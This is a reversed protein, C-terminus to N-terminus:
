RVAKRAGRQQTIGAHYDFDKPISVYDLRQLKDARQKEIYGEIEVEMSELDSPTLGNASSLAAM